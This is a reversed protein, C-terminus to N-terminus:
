YSQPRLNPPAKKLREILRDVEAQPRGDFKMRVIQCAFAIPISLRSSDSYFDDLAKIFTINLVNNPTAFEAFTHSIFEQDNQYSLGVLLGNWFAMLHGMKADSSM